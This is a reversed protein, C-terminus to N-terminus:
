RYERFLIRNRRQFDTKFNFNISSFSFFLFCVVYHAQKTSDLKLVRDSISQSSWDFSLFDNVGECSFYIRKISKSYIFPIPLYCEENINIKMLIKIENMEISESDLILLPM